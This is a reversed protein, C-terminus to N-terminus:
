NIVITPNDLNIQNTSKDTTKYSLKTWFLCTFFAIFIVGSQTELMAETVFNIFVLVIFFTGIYFNNRWSTIMVISLLTILMLLGIIGTAIWSQIYQNHANLFHNKLTNNDSDFYKQEQIEQVDGEGVGIIPNEFAIELNLIWLNFRTNSASNKNSKEVDFAGVVRSNFTPSLKFLAIFTITIGVIASIGLVYKKHYIIWYLLALFHVFIMTIIATRSVLLAICISLFVILSFNTVKSFHLKKNPKLVYYYTIILALTYYMGSYSTHHFLGFNGYFFHDLNGSISTLISANIISILAGVVCGEIFSIFIKPTIKKINLKSIFFSLPFIFWSLKTEIKLLGSALDSSYLLSIISILLLLAPTLIKISPILEKLPKVNIISTIFFLAIVPAIIEKHLPIVFALILM